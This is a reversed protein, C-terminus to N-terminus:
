MLMSSAHQVVVLQEDTRLKFVGIPSSPHHLSGDQNKANAGDDLRVGLWHLYEIVRSRIKPCNEGIGATFVITELGGLSTAAVAIFKSVSLCFQDIAFRCRECSDSQTLLDRMDSSVGSVGLLGSEKLLIREIEDANYGHRLWHLIVGPDLHGSRTGMLLGDLPTFSMSTYFSRQERMGCVSAGNGLHCIVVKGSAIEPYSQELQMAISEYSLGHFGYRQVGQNYFRNPIPLRTELEPLSTHFATDFCAVHVQTPYISRAMEIAALGYPQHLPALEILSRIGDVVEDDIRIPRSFLRGGHVIRYGIADPPKPLQSAISRIAQEFAQHISAQNQPSDSSAGPLSAGPLPLSAGPLMTSPLLSLTEQQIVKGSSYFAYKLTSSGPNLVLVNM